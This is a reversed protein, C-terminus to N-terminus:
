FDYKQFNIHQYIKHCKNNKTRLKKLSLIIYGALGKANNWNDRISNM